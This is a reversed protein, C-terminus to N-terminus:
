AARSREAESVGSRCSVNVISVVRGFHSEFLISAVGPISSLSYALGPRGAWVKPQYDNSVLCWFGIQWSEGPWASTVRTGFVYWYGNILSSTGQDTCVMVM